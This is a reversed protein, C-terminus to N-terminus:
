QPEAAAGPEPVKLAVKIENRQQGEGNDSALSRISDMVFIADGWAVGDEFDVFVVKDTLVADLLPRLTRALDVSRLQTEKEGDQLTISTDGKVKLVFQKTDLAVIEDDAIKRPIDLPTKVMMVPLAAMYIILLVLVIDIFPTINIESQVSKSGSSVNM